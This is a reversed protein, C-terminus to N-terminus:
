ITYCVAGDVGPPLALQAFRGGDAYALWVSLEDCTWSEVPVHSLPGGGMPVEVTTELSQNALHPAMLLVHEITNISHQTDTPSPSVTAVIVTLQRESPVFCQKLVRTLLSARYPPRAVSRDHKTSLCRAPQRQVTRKGARAAHYARFCDKLAMLSSNIFASERHQAATMQITEYNRESGALDVLLLHGASEDTKLVCHAQMM